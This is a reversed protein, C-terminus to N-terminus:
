YLASDFKGTPIQKETIESRRDKILVHIDSRLQKNEKWFITDIDLVMKLLDGPYYDCEIFLDEKLAEIALPVLYMLGLQQGIMLRLDEITFRDLTTKRLQHCRIVVHSSFEPNGWVNKELQELTKGRWNNELKM